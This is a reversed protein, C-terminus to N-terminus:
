APRFAQTSVQGWISSQGGGREGGRGRGLLLGLRRGQGQGRGAETARPREPRWCCERHNLQATDMSESSPPYRSLSTISPPAAPPRISCSGPKTLAAYSGLSALRQCWSGPCFQIMPFFSLFSDADKSCFSTFFAQSFFLTTKSSSTKEIETLRKNPVERHPNCCERRGESVGRYFCM